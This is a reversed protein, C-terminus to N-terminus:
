NLQFKRKEKTKLKGFQSHARINVKSNGIKIEITTVIVKIILKRKKEIRNM